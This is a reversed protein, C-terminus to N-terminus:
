KAFLRKVVRFLVAMAVSYLFAITGGILIWVVLGLAGQNVAFLLSVVGSVVTAFCGLISVMEGFTLLRAEWPRLRSRNSGPSQVGMCAIEALLIQRSVEEVAIPKTRGWTLLIDQRGLQKWERLTRLLAVSSTFYHKQRVGSADPYSICVDIPFDEM